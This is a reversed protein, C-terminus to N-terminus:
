NHILSPYQRKSKALRDYCVLRQLSNSVKSCETMADQISASQACASFSLLVGACTLTFLASERFLRRKM